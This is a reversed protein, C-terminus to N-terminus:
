SRILRHGFNRRPMQSRTTCFKRADGTTGLDSLEDRIQKLFDLTQQFTTWRKSYEWDLAKARDALVTQADCLNNRWLWVATAQECATDAAILPM